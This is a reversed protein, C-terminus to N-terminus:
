DAAPNRGVLQTLLEVTRAQNRGIKKALGRVEETLSSMKTLTGVKQELNGVQLRM